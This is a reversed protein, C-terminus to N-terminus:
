AEPSKVVLDFHEVHPPQAFFPGIIARWEGFLPSERFGVTHDELTDWFIQLVFREPTEICKNVKYGQMGKARSAVTRLARTIAEEFEAQRGPQIRIDAIELIM